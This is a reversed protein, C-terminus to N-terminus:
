IEYCMLAHYARSDIYGKWKEAQSRIFAEKATKYLKFAEEATDSVGLHKNVRGTTGITSLFKEGNATRTVGIPLDGRAGKHTNVLGNLEAPLLICSNRNYDTNGKVLLDKDLHFNDRYGVQRTHWDTFDQFDVFSVTAGIYTPHTVHYKADKCRRNMSFWKVGSATQHTIGDLKQAKAWEGNPKKYDDIM